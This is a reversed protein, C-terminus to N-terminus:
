EWTRLGEEKSSPQGALTLAKRCSSFTLLSAPELRGARLGKDGMSGAPGQGALRM